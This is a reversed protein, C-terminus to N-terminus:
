GYFSLIPFKKRKGADRGFFSHVLQTDASLSDFLKEIQETEWVFERQIAPLVYKTSQIGAMRDAITVPTQFSM